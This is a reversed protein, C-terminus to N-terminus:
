SRVSIYANIHMQHSIGGYKCGAAIRLHSFEILAEVIGSKGHLIGGDVSRGAASSSHISMLLLPQPVLSM